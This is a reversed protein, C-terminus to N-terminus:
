WCLSVSAILVLLSMEGGNDPETLSSSLPALLRPVDLGHPFTMLLLGDACREKEMARSMLVGMGEASSSLEGVVEGAGSWLGDADCADVTWAGGTYGIGIIHAGVVVDPVFAVVAVVALM